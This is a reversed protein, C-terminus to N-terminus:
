RKEGSFARHAANVQLDIIGSDRARTWRDFIYKQADRCRGILACRPGRQVCGMRMSNRAVAQACRSAYSEVQFFAIRGDIARVRACASDPAYAHAAADSVARRARKMYTYSIYVDYDYYYYPPFQPFGTCVGSQRPFPMNVTM